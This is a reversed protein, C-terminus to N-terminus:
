EPQPSVSLFALSLLVPFGICVSILLESFLLESRHCFCDSYLLPYSHPINICPISLDQDDILNPSHFMFFNSFHGVPDQTPFQVPLYISLCSHIVFLLSPPMSSSSSSNLKLQKHAIHLHTGLNTSFDPNFVCSLNM